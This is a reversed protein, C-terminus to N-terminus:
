GGWRLCGLGACPDEFLVGPLLLGRGSLAFSPAVLDCLPPCPVGKGGQPFYFMLWTNDLAIIIIYIYIHIYIYTHTYM